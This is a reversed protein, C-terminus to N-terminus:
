QHRSLYEKVHTMWQEFDKQTLPADPQFFVSDEIIGSLYAFNVYRPYWWMHPIRASIDMYPNKQSAVPDKDRTDRNAVLHSLSSSNAPDNHSLLETKLELYDKWPLMDAASLLIKLAHIRSIPKEPYFPSNPEDSYGRIIGLITAVNVAHYYPQGPRVDPYLRLHPAFKLGAYKTQSSFQYFCFEANEMCSQIFEHNKQDLKLVKNIQVMFSGRSVFESPSPLTYSAEGHPIVPGRLLEISGSTVGDKRSNPAGIALDRNGDNDFDGASFSNGFWDNAVRGEITIDAPIKSFNWLEKNRPFLSLVYLRGFNRDSGPAGAPAGIVLDPTGDRNIDAISLAGGILSPEDPAVVRSLTKTEFSGSRDGWLIYIQGQKNNKLYPFASIALDDIGDRNLDGFALSYGFWDFSRDATLLTESTAGEPSSPIVEEDSDSEDLQVPKKSGLSSGLLLTVTGAQKSVGNTAMYSGIAIDIKKDGDIDGHALTIGYRDDEHAGWFLLDPSSYSLHQERQFSSHLVGYIGYVKGVRKMSDKAAFPASVLLDDIRDRNLDASDLAFGFRDDTFKGLITWDARDRSFDFTRPKKQYSIGYVIHVAKTGPSGVAIDGVTDGNFDGIAVSTGLQSETGGGILEIDPKRETGALSSFFDKGGFYVQVRGCHKRDDQSFYPSAVVLDDIGDANIDGKSVIAGFQSLPAPAGFRQISEELSPTKAEPLLSLAYKYYPKSDAQVFAAQSLVLSTLTFLHLFKWRHFAM